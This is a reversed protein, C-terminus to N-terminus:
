KPMRFMRMPGLKGAPTEIPAQPEAAATLVVPHRKAHRKRPSPLALLGKEQLRLLLYRCAMDWPRGNHQYWGLRECVTVSISRRTQKPQSAIERIIELDGTSLDRGRVKLVATSM